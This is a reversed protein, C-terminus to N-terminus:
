IDECRMGAEGRTERSQRVPLVSIRLVSRTIVAFARM